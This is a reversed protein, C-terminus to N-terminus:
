ESVTIKVQVSKVGNVAKSDTIAQIVQNKNKATGELSVIGKTTTVRINIGTYIPDSNFKKQLTATIDDDDVIPTVDSVVEQTSTSPYIVTSTNTSPNTQPNNNEITMPNSQQGITEGSPTQASIAVGTFFICILIIFIKLM